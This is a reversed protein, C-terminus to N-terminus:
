WWVQKGNEYTFIREEKGKTHNRLLYLANTPVNNYKLRFMENTGTQRGLSVWRKDWYFLEYLEGERIANDDNRPLFAIKDIKTAQEFAMGVWSYEMNYMCFFSLPDDDFANEYIIEKNPTPEDKQPVSQKLAPWYRAYYFSKKSNEFLQENEAITKYVMSLLLHKDFVMTQIPKLYFPAIAPTGDRLQFGGFVKGIKKHACAKEFFEIEAINCTVRKPSIYRYYKYAKPNAINVVQYCAEPPSQIQYLDVSNLFMSDNSAQLRAGIMRECTSKVLSNHFKRSLILQQPMLKNPVLENPNGLSDILVANGFPIFNSNDYYGPMYVIGKNLKEFVATKNNLKAWAIPIWNKNDFVALYAFQKNSPIEENFNCVYDLTNYYESTVDKICPTRFVAPIQEDGCIAALSEKQKSFTRRYVKAALRDPSAEIHKGLACQDKIGFCLSNNESIILANWEHGLSRNAWQPAFDLVVPLGISRAAYVLKMSYQRCTAIRAGLMHTASFDPYNHPLFHIYCDVLKKLSDCLAISQNLDPTSKNALEILNAYVNAYSTRWYELTENGVRYPLIYECFADFSLQSAIPREWVAFADEINQILFKSQIVNIDSVFQLDILEHKLAISDFGNKLRDKELETKYFQTLEQQLNNFIKSDVGYHADMNKILFIAARLKLSDKPHKSFHNLVRVLEASNANSKILEAELETYQKCSFLLLLIIFLFLVRNM